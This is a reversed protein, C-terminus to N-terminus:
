LKKFSQKYKSWQLIFSKGMKDALAAIATFRSHWCVTYFNCFDIKVMEVSFNRSIANLNLDCHTSNECFNKELTLLNRMKEWQTTASRNCEM